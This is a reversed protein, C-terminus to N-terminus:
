FVHFFLELASVKIMFERQPKRAGSGAFRLELIIVELERGVKKHEVYKGLLTTLNCWSKSIDLILVCNSMNKSFNLCTHTDYTEQYTNPLMLSVERGTNVFCHPRFCLSILFFVVKKLSVM